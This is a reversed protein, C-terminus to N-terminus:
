RCTSTACWDAPHDGAAPRGERRLVRPRAPRDRVAEAGRDRRGRLARAPVSGCLHDALRGVDCRARRATASVDGRRTPAFVVDVGLADCLELDADLTRPYRALDDQAISSCRTSSSASSSADASARAQEILRAHGAHLAGMTPVLGIAGLAAARRRTSARLGRRHDRGRAAADHEPRADARARELPRPAERIAAPACTTSTPARRRAVITDGLHAYQKVFSPVFGDFLGLM